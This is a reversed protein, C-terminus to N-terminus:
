ANEGGIAALAKMEREAQYSVGVGIIIIKLTKVRIHQGIGKM